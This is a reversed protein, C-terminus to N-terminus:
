THTPLEMEQLSYQLQSNRNKSGQYFRDQIRQMVTTGDEYTCTPLLVIYQSLSYRSVTDGSRLSTLLVQEMNEMLQNMRELHENQTLQDDKVISITILALYVSIGLRGAMRAQLRYIDKFTGYECRYATKIRAAERLEGQIAFLDIEQKKSVKQLQHYLSQMAEDPSVGLEKYLLNTYAKYHDMALAQKGQRMLAIMLAYHLGEDLNDVVIANMMVKEMESYAQQEDLLKAMKKVYTLYSSHYYTVTSLLWTDDALKSYIPGCYVSVMERMADLDNENVALKQFIRDLRGLDSDLLIDPNWMYSGRGTIICNEIGFSKKLMMRCRYILNKLAGAPNDVEEYGWIADSLENVTVAQGKRLLFYVLLKAIRDSRVADYDLVIDHYSIKFSQFLTIYICTHDM